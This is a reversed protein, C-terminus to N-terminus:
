ESDARRGQGHVVMSHNMVLYSIPPLHVPPSGVDHCGEPAHIDPRQYPARRTSPKSEEGTHNEGRANKRRQLEEKERKRERLKTVERLEEKQEEPNRAEGNAMSKEL